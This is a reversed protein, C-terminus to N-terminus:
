SALATTAAGDVEPPLDLHLAMPYRGRVGMRM